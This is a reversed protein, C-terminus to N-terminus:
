GSIFNLFKVFFEIVFNLPRFIWLLVEYLPAVKLAVSDTFRVGLIKPSIEGVFLIIASAVFVAISVAQNEPLGSNEAVAIAMVTSFSSIAITVITTGVLNVILLRESNKKINRLAKAGFRREKLFVDLKHESVSMLPIETGAFFALLLLLVLFITVASAIDM